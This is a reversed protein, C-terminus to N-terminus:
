KRQPKEQVIIQCSVQARRLRTHKSLHLPSFCTMLRFLGTASHKPMPNAMVIPALAASQGINRPLWPNNPIASPLKGAFSSNSQLKLVPPATFDDAAIWPPLTNTPEVSSCTYPSFKASPFFTQLKLVPPGISDEGRTM